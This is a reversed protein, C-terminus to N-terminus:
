NQAYDVCEFNDDAFAIERSGKISAIPYRSSVFYIADSTSVVPVM